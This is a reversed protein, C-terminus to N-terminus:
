KGSLLEIIEKELEMILVRANEILKSKYSKEYKAMLIIDQQRRKAIGNEFDNLIQLEQDNWKVKELNIEVVPPYMYNSGNDFMAKIKLSDIIKHLKEDATVFIPVGNSNNIKSPVLVTLCLDISANWIAQFTHSIDKKKPHIMKKMKPTESFFYHGLLIYSASYMDLEKDLFNLYQMLLEHRKRNVSNKEILYLKLLSAYMITVLDKFSSDVELNDIKSTQLESIDKIQNNPKILKSHEVIQYYNMSLVNKLSDIMQFAKDYNVQFTQKNRCSEEVGFEYNIRVNNEIVNRLFSKVETVVRENHSRQFLSPTDYFDRLYVCLNTDLYLVTNDFYDKKKLDNFSNISSHDYVNSFYVNM